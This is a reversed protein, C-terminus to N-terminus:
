PIFPTIPLLAYPNFRVIQKFDDEIHRWTIQEVSIGLNSFDCIMGIIGPNYFVSSFHLVLKEIGSESTEVQPRHWYTLYTDNEEVSSPHAYDNVKVFACHGGESAEVSENKKHYRSLHIHKRIEIQMGQGLSGASSNIVATNLIIELPSQALLLLYFGLNM